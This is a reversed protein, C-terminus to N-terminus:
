KLEAVANVIAKGIMDAPLSEYLGEPTEIARCEAADKGTICSCSCCPTQRVQADVLYKELGKGNILIRNSDPLQEVPLVTERYILHVNKYAFYPKLDLLVQKLTTGTTACQECTNSIDAGIHQWEVVLEKKM